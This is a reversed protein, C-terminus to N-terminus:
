CVDSVLGSDSFKPTFGLQGLNQNTDLM